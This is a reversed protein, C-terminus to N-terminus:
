CTNYKTRSPTWAGEECLSGHSPQRNLRRRDSLPVTTLPLRMKGCECVLSAVAPHLKSDYGSNISLHFINTVLM